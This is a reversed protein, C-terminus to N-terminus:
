GPLESWRCFAEVGTSLLIATLVSALPLAAIPLGLATIVLTMLASSVGHIGSHVLKQLDGDQKCLRERLLQLYIDLLSSPKGHHTAFGLKESHGAVPLFDELHISQQEFGRAVDAFVTQAMQDIDSAQRIQDALKEADAVALQFSDKANAHASNDPM